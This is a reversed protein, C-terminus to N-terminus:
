RKWRRTLRVLSFQLVAFLSYGLAYLGIHPSTSMKGQVIFLAGMMSLAFALAACLVGGVILCSGALTPNDMTEAHDCLAEFMLVEEDNAPIGKELMEDQISRGLKAATELPMKKTEEMLAERTKQNM